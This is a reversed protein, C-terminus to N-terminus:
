DLSDDSCATCARSAAVRGGAFLLVVVDCAAKM